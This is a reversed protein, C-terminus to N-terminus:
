CRQGFANQDKVNWLRPKMLVAADIMEVKSSMPDGDVGYGLHIARLRPEDLPRGLGRYVAEHVNIQLMPNNLEVFGSAV